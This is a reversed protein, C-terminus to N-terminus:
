NNAGYSVTSATIPKSGASEQAHVVGVVTAAALGVGATFAIIAGIITGM